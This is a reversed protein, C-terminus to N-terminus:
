PPIVAHTVLWNRDTFPGATGGPGPPPITAVSDPVVPRITAPNLWKHIESHGDAFTFGCCGNHFSAPTDSGAWATNEYPNNIPPQNGDDFYADNISDPHEDLFVYLNSPQPVSSTKLYQPWAPNFENQGQLTTPDGAEDTFIGFYDNMSYSRVRGTWGAGRQAASLYVDAPCKYAQVCAAMYPGLQGQTLLVLNTNQESLTWDMVDVCWTNFKKGQVDTDTQNIGFNNCVHDNNDLAYMLWAKGM